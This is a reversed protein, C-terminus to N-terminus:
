SNSAKPLSDLNTVLQPAFLAGVSLAVTNTSRTYGSFGALTM